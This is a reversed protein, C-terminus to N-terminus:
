LEQKIRTASTEYFFAMSEIRPGNNRVWEDVDSEWTRMICHKAMRTLFEAVETHGIDELLYLGGPALRPMLHKYSFVQHGPDHGGDDNVVHLLTPAARELDDANSQDGITVIGRELTRAVDSRSPEIDMGFIFARTFYDHWMKLSAGSAVGIELFVIPRDRMPELMPEYWDLYCHSGSAKDTGYQKGIEDLTARGQM